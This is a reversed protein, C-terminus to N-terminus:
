YSAFVVVDDCHMRLVIRYVHERVLIVAIRFFQKVTNEMRISM